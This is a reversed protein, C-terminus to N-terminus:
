NTTRQTQTKFVKAQCGQAAHLKTVTNLDYFTYCPVIFEYTVNDGEKTQSGRHGLPPVNGPEIPFGVKRFQYQDKNGSYRGPTLEM